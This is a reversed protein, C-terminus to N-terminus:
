NVRHCATRRDSRIYLTSNQKVKVIPLGKACTETAPKGGKSTMYLANSAQIAGDEHPTKV